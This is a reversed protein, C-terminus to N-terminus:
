GNDNTEVMTTSATPLTRRPNPRPWPQDWRLRPGPRAIRACWQLVREVDAGRWGVGASVAVLPPLPQWGHGAIMNLTAISVGSLKAAQTISLEATAGSRAIATAHLLQHLRQRQQAHSMRDV